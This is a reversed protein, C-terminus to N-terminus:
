LELRPSVCMCMVATTAFRGCVASVPMVPLLGVFWASANEMCQAEVHGACAHSTAYHHMDVSYMCVEQLFTRHQADDTHAAWVFYPVSLVTWARAALLRQRARMEGLPDRGNATFHHPM